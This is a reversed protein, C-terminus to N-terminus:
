CHCLVHLAPPTFLQTLAPGSNVQRPCAPRFDTLYLQVGFDGPPDRMPGRLWIWGKWATFSRIQTVTVHSTKPCFFFFALM